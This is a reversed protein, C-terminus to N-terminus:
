YGDAKHEEDFLRQELITGWWGRSVPIATLSGYRGLLADLLDSRSRGFM